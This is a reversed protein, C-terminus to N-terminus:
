GNLFRSFRGGDGTSREVELGALKLLRAHRPTGAESFGPKHIVHRTATSSDVPGPFRPKAISETYGVVHGYRCRISAISKPKRMGSLEQQIEELASAQEGNHCEGPVIRSTPKSM